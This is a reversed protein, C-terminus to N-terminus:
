EYAFSILKAAITLASRATLGDCVAPFAKVYERLNVGGAMQDLTEGGTADAADSQLGLRASLSGM